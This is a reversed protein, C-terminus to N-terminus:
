QAVRGAGEAAKGNGGWHRYKQRTETVEAERDGMQGTGKDKRKQWERNELGGRDDTEGMGWERRDTQGGTDRDGTGKGGRDVTVDEMRAEGDGDKM